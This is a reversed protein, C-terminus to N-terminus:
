VLHTVRRQPHLHVHARQRLCLLRAALFQRQLHVVFGAGLSNEAARTEVVGAGDIGPVMPWKRVVPSRGTIALADKYNISSYAVKVLVEGPSLDDVRMEEIGARHTGNDNHIRFAQFTQATM